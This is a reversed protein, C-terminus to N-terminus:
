LKFKKILIVQDKKYNKNAKTGIIREWFIPSIGTDSRKTTLNKESFMSGRKIDEAAVIFKRIVSLNKIESKSPKKIGNGIALEINRISQVMYKFEKPELSSKHDPGNLSRDLTLHKEIVKAGFVVAGISVESGISHDSYGVNVNFKEKISKIALLNIENFPAPYESTCHLVTIKNKDTGSKILIDLAIKIDNMVSMGSSLIIKKNLSGLFKLLPLNTIEGSPIKIRKLKQKKLFLASHIDFATSLFEIKKKKCYKILKLQNKESLEYKKLMEFQSKEDVKQYKAKKTKETVINETKYSQFKVIDAKAYIAKDVLKKALLLSGNHNIGAEAIILIKSM